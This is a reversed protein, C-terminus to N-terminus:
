MYVAAPWARWRDPRSGRSNRCFPLELSLRTANIPPTPDLDEPLLAQLPPGPCLCLFAPLFSARAFTTAATVPQQPFTSNKCTDSTYVGVHALTRGRDGSVDRPGRRWRWCSRTTPAFPAQPRWFVEADLLFSSAATSAARVLRNKGTSTPM